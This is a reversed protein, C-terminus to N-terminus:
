TFFGGLCKVLHICSQALGTIIHIYIYIFVYYFQLYLFKWDKYLVAYFVKKTKFNQLVQVKSDQKTSFPKKDGALPACQVSICNCDTFTHPSSGFCFEKKICLNHPHRKTLHLFCTRRLTLMPMSRSELKPSESSSATAPAM